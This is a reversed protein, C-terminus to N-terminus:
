EGATNEPWDEMGFCDRICAIYYDMKAEMAPHNRFSTSDNMFLEMLTARDETPFTMSYRKVFYGSDEYEQIEPPMDIYSMAYRFGAPQLSLWVEESYLADPRLMADWELRKDIVHSLEHYVTGRSIAFGDLVVLFHDGKEQAFGNVDAPYGDAIGGLNKVLEIRIEGISGYPLQRFFDEPYDRLAEELIDLAEGVFFSDKLMDGQYHTYELQCQEGIRIDVGFRQSIEEARRYLAQELVPEPSQVDGVPSLPLDEGEQPASTDWFMLHAANDYTDRFFYGQWYGSWVLDTGVSAYYEQSLACSSIFKGSLDYLYLNRYTGDTMLLQRRGSILEVMGEQWVFTGAADQNILVYTGTDVNQRLLWQDVGRAGASVNGEVPITELTAASLNLSRTYTKQNARDTYSILAYGNGAGLTRLFTANELIWRSEGTLLDRVLLGEESYFVYLTELEQNLYWSDGEQPFSYTTELELSDRLILVQGTENDSLGIFGNGVQVRVAPSVAYSAEALLSGDELSIRKMVFRGDMTYEYLLLGNGYLQIDPCAMSEVHANPIYMLNGNAEAQDLLPIGAQEAPQSPQVSDTPVETEPPSLPPATQCGTLLLLLCLLILLRKM